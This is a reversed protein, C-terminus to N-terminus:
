KELYLNSVIDTLTQRDSNNNLCDLKVNLYYNIADEVLQLTQDTKIILIKQGITNKIISFQECDVLIIPEKEESM